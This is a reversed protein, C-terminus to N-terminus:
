VNYINNNQQNLFATYIYVTNLLQNFCDTIERYFFCPMCISYAYCCDLNGDQQLLEPTCHMTVLMDVHEALELVRTVRTVGCLGVHQVLKVLHNVKHNVM